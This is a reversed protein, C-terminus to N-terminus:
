PLGDETPEAVMEALEQASRKVRIRLGAPIRDPDTILDRNIKQLFKWKTHTGFIRYSVEALNENIKVKTFEDVRNKRRKKQSKGKDAPTAQIDKDTKEDTAPARQSFDGTRLVLGPTIQDAHSIKDKNLELLYKWKKHTGFVRNSVGALTENRRVVTQKESGTTIESINKTNKEVLKKLVQVFQM